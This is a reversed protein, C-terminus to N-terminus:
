IDILYKLIHHIEEKIYKSKILKELKNLVGELKDKSNKEKVLFIKPHRSKKVNEKDEWLEEKLKEGPRIGIFKFVCDPVMAKALDVIKMSPIKPVFIEGGLAEEM